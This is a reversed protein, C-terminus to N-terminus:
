TSRTRIGVLRYLPCFGVLGTLLPIVGFWGLWTHPGVFVLALLALGVVVRLVRDLPGENLLSEKM